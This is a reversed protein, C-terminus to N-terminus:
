LGAIEIRPHRALDLVVRHADRLPIGIRGTGIAFGLAPGSGALRALFSVAPEVVEPAFMEAAEEDYVAATEEDWVDSSVM